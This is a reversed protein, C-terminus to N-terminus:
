VTLGTIKNGMPKGMTVIDPIVGHQQFMWFHTGCRAFGTQVEDPVVIIGDNSYCRYLEIGDASTVQLAFV